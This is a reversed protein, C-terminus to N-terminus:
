PIYKTPRYDPSLAGKLKEDCGDEQLRVTVMQNMLTDKGHLLVPIYNGTMGKLLGSQRDRRGEVLVTALKGSQRAWFTRQKERGLARMEAARQKMIDDPIHDPYDAAPTGPRRSFPFVHLYSFPLSEVQRYSQTFEDDTEGPFGVMVDAGISAQPIKRVIREITDAYAKATYPRGMRKLVSTAGSQLPLHFHDCFREDTAVQEIIRETLENPEISSLRIRLRLSSQIINELLDSLTRVPTLDLGYHGLHIGTLVVEHFGSKALAFLNAMVDDMDMSTSRGRVYPVVCYTCFANCGDQIKLTPRTRGTASDLDFDDPKPFLAGKSGSFDLEQNLDHCIRGKQDHPVVELSTEMDHFVEPDTQAYCGTVIIKADPNKRAVRRVAQRSQMAAKGTVACTNIICIDVADDPEVAALGNRILSHSIASSECQNVKCGLTITKFRKAQKSVAM